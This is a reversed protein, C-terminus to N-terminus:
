SCSASPRRADDDIQSPKRKAISYLLSRALPSVSPREGPRISGSREVHLVYEVLVCLWSGSLVDRRPGILGYIAHRSRVLWKTKMAVVVAADGSRRQGVLRMAM